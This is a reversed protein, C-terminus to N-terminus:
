CRLTQLCMGLTTQKNTFLVRLGHPRIPDIPDSAWWDPWVALIAALIKSINECQQFGFQM